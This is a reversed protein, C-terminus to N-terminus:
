AHLHTQEPSATREGHPRGHELDANPAHSNAISRPLVVVSGSRLLALMNNAGGRESLLVHPNHLFGQLFACAISPTQLMQLYPAAAPLLANQQNAAAPLPLRYSAM